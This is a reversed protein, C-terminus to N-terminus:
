ADREPVTRSSRHGNQEAHRALDAEEPPDAAPVSDTSKTTGLLDEFLARYHVMAQRLDETSAESRRRRENVDAASRYHDLTRAHEVSLDALRQEYGETPYGREVMLATVLQDADRVCQDPSDVFREQVLAWEGAYRARVEPALPRVDLEAHRKERAALEHEAERRNGSEEVARTYEPGFRERLQRQRRARTTLVIALVALVLIVAGVVAAVVAGDSM